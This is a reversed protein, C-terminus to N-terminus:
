PHTDPIDGTMTPYIDSYNEVDRMCKTTQYVTLDIMVSDAVIDRGDQHFLYINLFPGAKGVGSAAQDLVQNQLVIPSLATHAGFGQDRKHLRKFMGYVSPIQIIIRGQTPYPSGGSQNGSFRKYRWGPTLRINNFFDVTEGASQTPLAVTKDHNFIWAIVFDSGAADTTARVNLVYAASLVQARKYELLILKDHYVPHRDHHSQAAAGTFTGGDGMPDNFNSPEFSARNVSQGSTFGASLKGTTLFTKVFSGPLLPRKGNRFMNNGRKARRKSRRKISKRRRRARRPM